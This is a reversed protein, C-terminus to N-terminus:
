QPIITRRKPKSAAAAKKFGAPRGPGRHPSREGLLASIANAIRDSQQRLETLIEELNM